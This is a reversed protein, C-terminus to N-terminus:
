HKHKEQSSTHTTDTDVESSSIADDNVVRIPVRTCVYLYTVRSVICM